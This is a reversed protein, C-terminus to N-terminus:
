IIIKFLFLVEQLVIVGAKHNGLSVYGPLTGLKNTSQIEIQNLPM